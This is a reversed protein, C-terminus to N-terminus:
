YLKQKHEKNKKNLYKFKLGFVTVIKYSGDYNKTISFITELFSLPRMSHRAFGKYIADVEQRYQLNCCYAHRQVILFSFKFMFLEAEEPTMTKTYDKLVKMIYLSDENRKKYWAENHVTSSSHQLYHYRVRSTYSVRHSRILAEALYVNDEYFRGEPFQVGEVIERRFLKTCCSGDKIRDFKEMLSTADGCKARDMYKSRHPFELVLSSCAVDSGNNECLNYLTEYFGKDVWDDSDLFGVFEGKALKLAENRARGQGGNSLFLVMIGKDECEHLYQLTEANTSGDDVLILEIGSLSQDLISQVSVNLYKVQTNFVPMIVSVRPIKMLYIEQLKDVKNAKAFKCIIKSFLM